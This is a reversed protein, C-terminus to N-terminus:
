IHLLPCKEEVRIDIALTESLSFQIIPISSYMHLQMTHEKLEVGDERTMIDWGCNPMLTHGLSPTHKLKQKSRSFKRNLLVWESTDKGSHRPM